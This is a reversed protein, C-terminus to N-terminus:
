FPLYTSNRFAEELRGISSAPVPVVDLSCHAGPLRRQSQEIVVPLYRAARDQKRGEKDPKSM